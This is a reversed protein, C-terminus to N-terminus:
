QPELDALLHARDEGAVLFVREQVRLRLGREGLPAAVHPLQQAATRARTAGDGTARDGTAATAATATARHLVVARREGPPRERAPADVLGELVGELPLAAPLDDGVVERDLDLAGAQAEVGHLLHEGR